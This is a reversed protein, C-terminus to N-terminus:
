REGIEFRVVSWGDGLPVSCELARGERHAIDRVEIPAFRGEGVGVAAASARWIEPREVLVTVTAEQCSGARSTHRWSGETAGSLDILSVVVTSDDRRVRAYVAGGLPEPSVTGTWTVTVAANEDDLEYWSTDVGRRFLDRCRLAFRHWALVVEIEEDQLTEHEVYYPHNLVGHDDGWMLIGAGLTTVIAESLVATRLADSREGDWVPPYIALTDGRPEAGGASRELLGELHRWRDNPPWVEAYRFGPREPPTFGRPVGNVQNFSLVVEPRATRVARVFSDYGEDISVVSGAVDLTARPYGYTDLHLGNFHLSDLARGYVDIWHAQWESNAPDMIQLLDGLSEVSGDNRRLLWSEHARAFVEDAACVPAYAQAVAGRARIGDILQGLASLEIPRNLPDFYMETEALPRSYREMWDYVQVVTCRLQGLWRLVSPTSSADFSTAFGVIPDDGMTARVSVFEEALVEGDTSIATVAHTGAPLRAVVADDGEIRGVFSEGFATRAEVVDTGVPLGKVDVDEGVLVASPVFGFDVNTV